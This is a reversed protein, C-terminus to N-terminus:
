AVLEVLFELSPTLTSNRGGAGDWPVDGLLKWNGTAVVAKGDRELTTKEVHKLLAARAATVDAGLLQRLDRLKARAAVRMEGVQTRISGETSSVARDTIAAMESERDAIAKM